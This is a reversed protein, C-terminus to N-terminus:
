QVRRSVTEETDLVVMRVDVSSVHLGTLRTTQELVEDRVRAALDTVPAPWQAAAEVGILARSGAVDVTVNPFGARRLRTVSGSRSVTGPVGRVVQEAIRRVATPRVELSGRGGPKGRDYARTPEDARHTGLETEAM